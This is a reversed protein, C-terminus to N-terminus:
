PTAGRAASRGRRLFPREFLWFFGAALGLCAPVVVAARVAVGALTAPTGFVATLGEIVPVHVLYLSYSFGGIAAVARAPWRTLKGAQEWEVLRLLLAFCGVAFVLESLAVLSNLGARVWGQPGDDSLWYRAYRGLTRWHTFATVGGCALVLGWSRCWAPVRVLGVWVEAAVAGVLWLFWWGFPWGDANGLTLPGLPLAFPEAPRGTARALLFPGWVHALRWALSVALGALLLRAASLRARLLVVVAFLGYLQEELGLTWFPPNGLGGSYERTLNHVMLLHTLLDWTRDAPLEVAHGLRTLLSAVALSFGIAVLYTPYLRVFRRKWFAAWSWTGARGAALRRAYGLHICFGSIVIFLPVGLVGFDLPLALLLSRDFGAPVPRPLHTFVVALAALGRLLDIAVM